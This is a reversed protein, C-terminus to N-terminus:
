VLSFQERCRLFGQTPSNEAPRSLEDEDQDSAFCIAQTMQKRFHEFLDCQTSDDVALLLQTTTTEMVSTMIEQGKARETTSTTTLSTTTPLIITNTITTTTSTTTLSTTTATSTTKYDAPLALICNILFLIQRM